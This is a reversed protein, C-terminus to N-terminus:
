LLSSCRTLYWATQCARDGRGDADWANMAEGVCGFWRLDSRQIAAAVQRSENGEMWSPLSEVGETFLGATAVAFQGTVVSQLCVYRVAAGSPLRRWAVVEICDQANMAVDSGEQFVQGPGVTSSQTVGPKHAMRNQGERLAIVHDRIEEPDIAMGGEPTTRLTKLNNVAEVFERERQKEREPRRDPCIANWTRPLLKLNM